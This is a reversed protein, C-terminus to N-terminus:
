LSIERLLIKSIALRSEKIEIPVRKRTSLGTDKPKKRLNRTFNKLYLTKTM